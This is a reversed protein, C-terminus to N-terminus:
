FNVGEAKLIKQKLEPGWLYNHLSGSKSIVRHCPIIYSIKNKGVANATARTYNINKDLNDVSKALEEYSIVKGAPIKLLAQWVDIQFLTGILLIDVSSNTFIRSGIDNLNSNTFDVKINKFSQKAINLVEEKNYRNENVFGLYCIKNDHAMVLMEGFPSDLFDYNIAIEKQKNYHINVKM